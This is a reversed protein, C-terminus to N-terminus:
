GRAVRQLCRGEMAVHLGNIDKLRDEGGMQRALAEILERAHVADAKITRVGVSPTNGSSKQLEGEGRLTLTAYLSFTPIASMALLGFVRISSWRMKM